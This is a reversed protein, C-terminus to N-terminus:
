NGGLYILIPPLTILTLASPREPLPLLYFHESAMSVRGHQEARYTSKGARRNPILFQTITIYTIIPSRAHM